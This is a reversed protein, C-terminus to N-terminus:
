EGIMKLTLRMHLASAAGVLSPMRVSTSWGSQTEGCHYHIALGISEIDGAKARELADELMEIVSGNVLPTTPLLHIDAM